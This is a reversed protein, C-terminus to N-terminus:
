TGLEQIILLTYTRKMGNRERCEVPIEIALEVSLSKQLRDPHPVRQPPGIWDAGFQGMLRAALINVLELEWDQASENSCLFFDTRVGGYAAVYIQPLGIATAKRAEGWVVNRHGYFNIEQLM